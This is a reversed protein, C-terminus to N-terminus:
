LVTPQANESWRRHLDNKDGEKVADLMVTDSKHKHKLTNKLGGFINRRPRHNVRADSGESLENESPIGITNAKHIYHTHKRQSQKNSEPPDVLPLAKRLATTDWMSIDSLSAEKTLEKQYAIPSQIAKLFDRQTQLIDRITMLWQEQLEETAAQCTFSLNTNKPDTSELIFCDGEPKLNMKNVQLHAKYIYQPSTFQTKKGVVESFIISQEFFFVHLDKNKGVVSTQGYDSVTLIGHFLLKGQATIKGEFGQLRGVDMMDNATKPVVVMIKYAARLPEIEATLGARETYKLIDKLMLQYKMIRQVPKILLDCLQLKQGLKVRLDEFYTELYESVIYESVHKNKCYIIYMQLKREYRKFLSALQVPNEVAQKLSKLFFNKHWDYIVEINGFVLKDKGDKLDEPMLIECDPDRIAAIYGEVIMSLDRVYAEETDILEQLVYQRKKLLIETKKASDVTDESPKDSEDGSFALATAENSSCQASLDRHVNTNDGYESIANESKADRMLSNREQNESHQERKCPNEEIDPVGPPPSTVLIPEQIPKMPPPLELEEDVDEGGNALESGLSKAGKLSLPPRDEDEEGESVSPKNGMDSPVKIRKDSGTKKLPPPAAQTKDVKGQSLKRLPPPLWKRGSFGRRKNVPSSTNVTTSSDNVAVAAAAAAATDHKRHFTFMVFNSGIVCAGNNFIM